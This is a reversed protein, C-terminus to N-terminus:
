PLILSSYINGNGYVSPHERLKQINAYGEERLLTLLSKYSVPYPVWQKVPQDTDYEVLLIFSGPNLRDTLKQFLRKKDQVYHLANAMLIGDLPENFLDDKEFDGKLIKIHVNNDRVGTKLSPHQDVGYVISGEHLLSALAHTFLGSGCGLDACVLPRNTTIHPTRILAIAETLTM